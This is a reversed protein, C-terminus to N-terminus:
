ALWSVRALDAGAIGDRVTTVRLSKGQRQAQALEAGVFARSFTIARNPRAVYSDVDEVSGIRRHLALSEIVVRASEVEPLEPVRLDRGTVYV